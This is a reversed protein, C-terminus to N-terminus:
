MASLGCPRTLTVYLQFRHNTFIECDHLIGNFVSHQVPELVHYTPM